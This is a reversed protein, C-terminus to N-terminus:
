LEFLDDRSPSREDRVIMRQVIVNTRRTVLVSLFQVYAVVLVRLTLILQNKKCLCTIYGGGWFFFVSRILVSGCMVSVKPIKTFFFLVNTFIKVSTRQDTVLPNQQQVLNKEVGKAQM